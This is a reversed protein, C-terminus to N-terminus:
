PSYKEKLVEETYTQMSFHIFVTTSQTKAAAAFQQIVSPAWLKNLKILRDYNTM